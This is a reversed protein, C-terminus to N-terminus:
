AFDEDITLQMLNASTGFQCSNAFKHGYKSRVTDHQGQGAERCLQNRFPGAGGATLRQLVEDEHRYRPCRRGAHVRQHQCQPQLKHTQDRRSSTAASPSSMWRSGVCAVTAASSLSYELDFGVVKFM